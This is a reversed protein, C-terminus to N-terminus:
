RTEMEKPWWLKADEVSYLNVGDIKKVRVRKTKRNPHAAMRLRAKMKPPFWEAPKFDGVPALAEQGRVAALRREDGPLHTQHSASLSMNPGLAKLDQIFDTLGEFHARLQGALAADAISPLTSWGGSLVGGIEGLMRRVRSSWRDLQSVSPSDVFPVAAPLAERAAHVAELFDVISWYLQDRHQVWISLSVGGIAEKARAVRQGLLRSREDPTVDRPPLDGYVFGDPVKRAKVRVGSKRFEDRLWTHHLVIWEANGIVEILADLLPRVEPPVVAPQMYRARTLRAAQPAIANAMHFVGDM